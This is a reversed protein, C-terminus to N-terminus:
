VKKQYFQPRTRNIWVEALILHLTFGFWLTTGFFDQPTLGTLKGTAFFIGVIPRTTTVAMGISFARIMWERHLDIKRARICAFARMLSFLFVIGFFTTAATESVGSIAMKFGMVIGSAGIILGLIMLVRGNWRHFTPYKTRITKTFQLLGFLIFILAPLIHILTLVPNNVFGEDPFAPVGPPPPIPQYRNELVPILFFTRRTVIAVGILALFFAAIWVLRNKPHSKDVIFLNKL